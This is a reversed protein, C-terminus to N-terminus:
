FYSGIQRNQHGASYPMLRCSSSHQSGPNSDRQPCPHEETKNTKHNYTATEAVLQDHM